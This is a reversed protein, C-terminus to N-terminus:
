LYGLDRLTNEVVEDESSQKKLDGEYISIVSDIMKELTQTKQSGSIREVEMGKYFTIFTPLGAINFESSITPNKDINIKYINCKQEYKLSLEKLIPDVQKCPLCWSAWCEVFFPLESNLKKENFLKATLEM